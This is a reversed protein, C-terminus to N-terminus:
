IRDCTCKALCIPSDATVNRTGIIENVCDPGISGTEDESSRKGGSSDCTCTSTHNILFVINAITLQFLEIDTFDLTTKSFQMDGDHLKKKNM